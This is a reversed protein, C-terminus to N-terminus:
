REAYGKLTLEVRSISRDSGCVSVRSMFKVWVVARGQFRLWSRARVRAMARVRVGPIGRSRERVSM